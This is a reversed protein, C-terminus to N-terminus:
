GGPPPERGRRAPPPPGTGPAVPLRGDPFRAVDGGGQSPARLRAGGRRGVPGGLRQARARNGRAGGRDGARLAGAAGVARGVLRRVVRSGGPGSRFLTTYPFLTSRPPRRIM